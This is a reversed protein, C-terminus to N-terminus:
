TRRCVSGAPERIFRFASSQRPYKSLFLDLQKRNPHSQKTAKEQSKLSWDNDFTKIHKSLLFGHYPIYTM